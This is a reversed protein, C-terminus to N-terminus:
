RTLTLVLAFRRIIDLFGEAKLSAGGVLVGDVGPTQALEDANEPRVSGGYLIRVPEITKSAFSTELIRRIRNHVSSVQESTAHRGTGIAWVPEYAIEIKKIDRNAVGKLAIRLQRGIVRATTGSRREQLTEGVCLIPRLGERLSALLKQAVTQDSEHFLRRRESHGVIVFRCGAERLMRPSVEGTFAGETEWHVDQAALQIPSGRAARRVANLSTFPPAIAVEVRRLRKLGKVINQTLTGAESETGYMKWNGVLLPVKM